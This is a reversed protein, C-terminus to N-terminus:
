VRQVLGPFQEEEGCLLQNGPRFGFLTEFREELDAVRVALDAFGTVDLFEDPVDVRHPVFRGVGSPPDGAEDFVAFLGFRDLDAAKSARQFLPEFRDEAPM